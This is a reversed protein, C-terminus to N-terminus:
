KGRRKPSNVVTIKFIQDENINNDKMWSQLAAESPLDFSGNDDPLDVNVSGDNRVMAVYVKEKPPSYLAEIADVRKKQSRM